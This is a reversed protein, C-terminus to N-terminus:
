HDVECGKTGRGCIASSTAAPRCGLVLWCKGIIRTFADDAPHSTPQNPCYSRIAELAERYRDRDTQAQHLASTLRGIVENDAGAGIPITDGLTAELFRADGEDTASVTQIEHPSVDSLCRVCRGATFAGESLSSFGCCPCRYVTWRDAGLKQADNWTSM